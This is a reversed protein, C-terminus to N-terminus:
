GSARLSLVRTSLAAAFLVVFGTFGLLAVGWGQRVLPEFTAATARAGNLLPQLFPLLAARVTEPVAGQWLAPGAYIVMAVIGAAVLASAASEEMIAAMHGWFLPATEVKRLITARTRPQLRATEAWRPAARLTRELRLAFACRSCAAAHDSWEDPTTNGDLRQDLIQLFDECKM